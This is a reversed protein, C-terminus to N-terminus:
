YKIVFVKLGHKKALDIMHKTGKSVGDWYAILVGNDERAYLAMQENRRYGASKGFTDWDAKMIKLSLGYQKAFKEGLQDAGRAGGSIIEYNKDVPVIYEFGDSTFKKETEKGALNLIIQVANDCLLKYDNFDRLGAIIIRM